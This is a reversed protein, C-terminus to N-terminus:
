GNAEQGFISFVGGVKAVTCYKKRWRQPPMGMISIFNRNFSTSNAFGVKLAIDLVSHNTAYLLECAKHVRYKNLYQLPSMKMISQFLRRFHTLSVHCEHALQEIKLPDTYHKEVYQIAPYLSLKNHVATAELTSQKPILRILEILLATTLCAVNPMYNEQQQRLEQMIRQLLFHLEPHHDGSIVNMFDPSDFQLLREQPFEVPLYEGFLRQTDIYLYEWVSTQGESSTSMHMANPCVVSIDHDTFTLAKGEVLLTGQGRRCYGIELCNHCHLFRIPDDPMVWHEGIFALIPYDLPLNYHSYELPYTNQQQSM